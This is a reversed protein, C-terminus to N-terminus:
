CTGMYVWYYMFELAAHIRTTTATTTTTPVLQVKGVSVIEVERGGGRAGGFRAEGLRRVDDVDLFM